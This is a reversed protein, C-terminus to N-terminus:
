RWIGLCQFNCRGKGAIELSNLTALAVMQAYEEEECEECANASVYILAFVLVCVCVCLARLHVSNWVYMMCMVSGIM